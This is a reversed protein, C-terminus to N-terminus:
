TTKMSRMIRGQMKIIVLSHENLIIVGNFNIKYWYKPPPQWARNPRVTAASSTWVM